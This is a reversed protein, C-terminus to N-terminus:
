ALPQNIEGLGGASYVDFSGDERASFGLDRYTAHTVNKPTHSFGAKLKRPLRPGNIYSM